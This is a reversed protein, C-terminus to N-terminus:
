VMGAAAADGRRLLAVISAVSPPPPLRRLRTLSELGFGLLDSLLQLNSFAEGGLIYDLEDRYLCIL